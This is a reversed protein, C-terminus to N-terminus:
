NTFLCGLLCAVFAANAAVLCHTQFVGILPTCVKIAENHFAKCSKKCFEDSDPSTPEAFVQPNSVTIAMGMVIGFFILYMTKSLNTMVEM